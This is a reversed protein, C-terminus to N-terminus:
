IGETMAHTASALGSYSTVIELLLPFIVILRSSGIGLAGMEDGEEDDRRVHATPRSPPIALFIIITM